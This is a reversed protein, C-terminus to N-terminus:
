GGAPVRTARSNLTGISRALEDRATRVANATFTSGADQLAEVLAALANDLEITLVHDGLGALSRLIVNAAYAQMAPTLRGFTIALSHLIAACTQHQMSESAVVALSEFAGLVQTMVNDPYTIPLVDVTGPTSEERVAWRALLDRLNYIAAVGPAPNQQSTSISRWAMTELQEIAYAPDTDLRRLRDLKTADQVISVLHDSVEREGAHVIAVPDGYAAYSGISVLFEIDAECEADAISRGIADVDISVIFGHSTVNVHRGPSAHPPSVRRTKAILTLQRERGKLAHDHIARMIENPRMQSITSYILLLLVYLAVITFLLALSAGLVPNFPPDVTALVILAYLALGVFFGFYAQNLRRQLFQDFVQHTLAGASQQLALLLLSFTISTITILGAAISGLLTGTAQADGFVHRHMFDRFPMVWTVDAQELSYTGLALLVFLTIIATPIALFSTFARQFTERIFM